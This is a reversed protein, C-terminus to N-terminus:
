GQEAYAKQRLGRFCGRQQDTTAKHTRPAKEQPFDRVRTAEHKVRKKLPALSNPPKSTYMRVYFYPKLLWSAKYLHGKRRTCYVCVFNMLLLWIVGNRLMPPGTPPLIAMTYAHHERLQDVIYTTSLTVDKESRAIYMPDPTRLKIRRDVRQMRRQEHASPMPSATCQRPQSM